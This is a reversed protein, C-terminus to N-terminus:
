PAASRSRSARGRTACANTTRPTIRKPALTKRTPWIYWTDACSGPANRSQVSAAIGTATTQREVGTAVRDSTVSAAHCPCSSKSASASSCAAAATPM